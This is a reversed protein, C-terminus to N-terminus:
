YIYLGILKSYIRVLGFVNKLLYTVSTNVLDLRLCFRVQNDAQSVMQHPTEPVLACRLVDAAVVGYRLLSGLSVGAAVM